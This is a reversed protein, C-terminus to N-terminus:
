KVGPEKDERESLELGVLEIEDYGDISHREFEDGELL